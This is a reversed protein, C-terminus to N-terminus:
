GTPLNTLAGAVVVVAALLAAENRLTWALQDWQGRVTPNREIRYLLVFRNWGALALVPVALGLKLLLTRGYGTGLLAELSGVTLVAMILGSTALLGAGALAFGSFRIVTHALRVVPSDAFSAPASDTEQAPTPGSLSPRAAEELTARRVRALEFVLGLVGGLWFAAALLHGFGALVMLWVPPTSQTHGVLLSGTLALAALPVALWSAGSTLRSAWWAGGGAVTVVGAAAVQPVSVAGLWRASLIEWPQAGLLRLAAVPVLLLAAGVAGGLSCRLTRAAVGTAAVVPRVALRRFFVLGAFVLLGLYQLGTLVITLADIAASSPVDAPDSAPESTPEHTPHHTPEATRQSTAESTPEPTPEQSPESANVRFGVKGASPHGDASAVRYSLTYAGEPLGVPLPATVVEHHATAILTVTEGGARSLEFGGEVPEVPDSFRLTVEAPATELVAGDAPNSSELHAHAFAPSAVPVLLLLGGLLM